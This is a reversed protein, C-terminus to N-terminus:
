QGLKKKKKKGCLCIILDWQYHCGELEMAADTGLLELSIVGTHIKNEQIGQHPTKKKKIERLDEDLPSSL